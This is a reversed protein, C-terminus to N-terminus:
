LGLLWTSDGRLNSLVPEITRNPQPNSRVCLGTMLKEAEDRFQGAPLVLPFERVGESWRARAASSVTSRLPRARSSLASKQTQARPALIASKRLARSSPM